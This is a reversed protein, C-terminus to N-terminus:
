KKPTDSGDGSHTYHLMTSNVACRQRTETDPRLRKASVNGGPRRVGRFSSRAPARSCFRPDLAAVPVRLRQAIFKLALRDRGERLSSPPAGNKNDVSGFVRRTENCVLKLIM